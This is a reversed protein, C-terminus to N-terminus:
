IYQKMEEELKEETVELLGYRDEEKNYKIVCQRKEDSYAEEFYTYENM